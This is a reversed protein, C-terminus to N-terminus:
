SFGTADGTHVSLQCKEIGSSYPKDITHVSTCQRFFTVNM